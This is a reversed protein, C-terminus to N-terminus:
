NLCYPRFLSYHIVLFIYFHIIFLYHFIHLFLSYTLDLLEEEVGSATMFCVQVIIDM